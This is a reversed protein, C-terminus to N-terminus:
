LGSQAAVRGDAIATLLAAHDKVNQKAYRAAFQVIAEGFTRNKGLYAPLRSGTGGSRAHARSLAWGCIEGYVGLVDASMVHVDVSAKWDWLQRVYFDRTGGDPSTTRYWGLFIDGAAQMVRQGDVVRQGHNHQEADGLCVARAAGGVRHKATTDHREVQLEGSDDKTLVAARTSRVRRVQPRGLGLRLRSGGGRPKQVQHGNFTIPTEARM